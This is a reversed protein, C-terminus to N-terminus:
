RLHKCPVRRAETAAPTAYAATRIPRTELPAAPSAIPHPSSIAALVPRSSRTRTLGSMCGTDYEAHNEYLLLSDSAESDGYCQFALDNEAPMLSVLLAFLKVHTHNCALGATRTPTWQLSVIGPNSEMFRQYMDQVILSRTPSCRQSLCNHQCAINLSPRFNLALPAPLTAPRRQGPLPMQRLALPPSARDAAARPSESLASLPSLRRERRGSECGAGSMWGVM